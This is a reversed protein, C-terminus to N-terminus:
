RNQFWVRVVDKELQLENSLDNIEERSPKSNWLFYSELSVLVSPEFHTRKKRMKRSTDQLTPPNTLATSNNQTNDADDLRNQEPKLKCMNTACTPDPSLPPTSRSRQRSRTMPLSLPQSVSTSLSNFSPHGGIGLGLSLNGNEEMSPSKPQNEMEGNPVFFGTFNPTLPSNGPTSPPTYSVTPTSSLGEGNM